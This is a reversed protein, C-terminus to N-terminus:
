RITKLYLYIARVDDDSMRSFQAYPMFPNLKYGDPRVGTRVTTVFQDETWSGPRGTSTINPPKAPFAKPPNKMGQFLHDMEPKQMMKTRPTHCEGCLGVHQSLYAGYEPTAGRAPATIATAANAGIFPKGMKFMLNLHQKIPNNVPALSKLYHAVALADDDSMDHFWAYPMVPVLLRGGKRHGARLATTIEAETWSGLGTQMDPTLNAAYITGFRWDEFKAGGSLPGDPNKQDAAHCSGCVAVTRVIYEGRSVSTDAADAISAVVFIVAFLATRKM